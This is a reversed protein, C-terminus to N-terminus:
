GHFVQNSLSQDTVFIPQPTLEFFQILISESGILSQLIDVAEFIQSFENSANDTTSLFNVLSGINGITDTEDHSPQHGKQIISSRLASGKKSVIAISM